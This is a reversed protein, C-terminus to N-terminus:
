KKKMRKYHKNIKMKKEFQFKLGIPLFSLWLLEFARCPFTTRPLMLSIPSPLFRITLIILAYEM